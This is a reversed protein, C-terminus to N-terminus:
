KDGNLLYKKIEDSIIFFIIFPLLIFYYPLYKFDTLINIFGLFIIIFAILM